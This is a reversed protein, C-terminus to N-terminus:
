FDMFVHFKLALFIESIMQDKKRGKWKVLPSSQSGLFVLHGTVSVYAALSLCCVGPACAEPEGGLAGSIM